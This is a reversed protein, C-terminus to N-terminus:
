RRLAYPNLDGGGCWDLSDILYSFVLGGRSTKKEAVTVMKTVMASGRKLLVAAARHDSHLQLGRRSPCGHAVV